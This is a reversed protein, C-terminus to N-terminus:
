SNKRFLNLSFKAIFSQFVWSLGTFVNFYECIGRIEIPIANIITSLRVAMSLDAIIVSAASWVFGYLWVMFKIRMLILKLLVWEATDVIINYVDITAWDYIAQFFDM